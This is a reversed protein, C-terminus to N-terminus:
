KLYVKYTAIEFGKLKISVKNDKVELHQGYENNEEELANTKYIKDIKIIDGDFSLTGTAGGGLSEYVRLVISTQKSETKFSDYVNVDHDNEGRKIHSLILSRDGTLRVSNLLKTLFKSEDPIVKDLQYNLNHALQVTDPGLGGKHPYIAYEFDHEGMDAIDDPAKPSRLLSLRMLNGHINGGYKNTNIISVGYNYESLDMFKHHCVEFKAIDWNTNFHTPRQTIGFQTEFNAHNATYITTPFQVRLFKYTEHWNVHCKFKVFNNHVVDSTSKETLGQISIVTEISSKDSIKNKVLVSSELKDNSLILVEGDSLLKFKDLSYIEVDWAPYNLPQDDVIIYQNGGIIGDLSNTQKTATNDIVERENVVDYLSTIIGTKSITVKLLENTLIYSGDEVMSVSAPYKVDEKRNIITEGNIVNL